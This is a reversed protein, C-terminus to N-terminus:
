PSQSLNNIYQVVLFINNFFHVSHNQCSNIWSRCSLYSVCCIRSQILQDCVIFLALIYMINKNTNDITNSFAISFTKIWNQFGDTSQIFFMIFCDLIINGSTNNFLETSLPGLPFSNFSNHWRNQLAQNCNSRPCSFYKWLKGKFDEFFAKFNEFINM